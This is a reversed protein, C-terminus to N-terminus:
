VKILWLIDYYIEINKNFWLSTPIHQSFWFANIRQSIRQIFMLFPYVDSFQDIKNKYKFYNKIPCLSPILKPKEWHISKSWMARRGMKPESAEMRYWTFDGFEVWFAESFAGPKWSRNRGLFGIEEWSFYMFIGHPTETCAVRWERHKIKQQVPYRSWPYCKDEM